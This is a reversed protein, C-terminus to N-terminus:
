PWTCAEPQRDPPGDRRTRPRDRRSVHRRGHPKRAPCPQHPRRAFLTTNPPASASTRTPDVMLAELDPEDFAEIRTALSTDSLIFVPTSYKRAIRAAELAIYFCDEVTSAALVVRATATGASFPRISIARSSM